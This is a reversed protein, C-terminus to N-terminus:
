VAPRQQGIVGLRGVEGRGYGRELEGVDHDSADIAVIQAVAAGPVEGGADARHAYGRGRRADFHQHRIEAAPELGREVHKGPTRRIDHVVIEFGYRAEVPRPPRPSPSVSASIRSTMRSRRACPTSM